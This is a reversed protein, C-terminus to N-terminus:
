LDLSSFVEQSISLLPFMKNGPLAPGLPQVYSGPVQFFISSRPILKLYLLTSLTLSM